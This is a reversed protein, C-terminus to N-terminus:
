KQRSQNVKKRNIEDYIEPAVGHSRIILTGDLGGDIYDIPEVGLKKLDNVDKKLDFLV